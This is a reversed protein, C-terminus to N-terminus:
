VPSFSEGGALTEANLEELITDTLQGFRPDKRKRPRDMDVSFTRRIRGPSSSMLVIRDALFVAEDVGHTVFLITKRREQWIRLLEQQLLIRTYADLAGFPEDMLLLDPNNALARAIAARQRMGGSLEHPYASGFRELGVLALYEESRRRRKEASLGSFELGLGINDLITRWPFLSYEQFVMGRERGPGEIAEGRYVVSGSSPHELGAVIRLLTSKGCGSPGLLCVFENEDVVLDIDQLADVSTGKESLFAKNLNRVALVQGM